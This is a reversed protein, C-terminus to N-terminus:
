HQIPGDHVKRGARGGERTLSSDVLPTSSEADDERGAARGDTSIDALVVMLAWLAVDQRPDGSIVPPRPGNM